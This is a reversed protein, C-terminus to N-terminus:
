KNADRKAAHIWRSTRFKKRQCRRLLVPHHLRQSRSHRWHQNEPSPPLSLTRDSQRKSLIQERTPWHRKWDCKAPKQTHSGLGVCGSCGPTAGHRAVVRTTLYVRRHGSPGQDEQTVITAKLNEARGNWPLGRVKKLESIVFREEPPVRHLSRAKQFGNETLIIHEDTMPAKGVWIGHGWRQDLNGTYKYMVREGFPLQSTYAKGSVNLFVTRGDNKVQFRTLCWAAHRILWATLISDNSLKERPLNGLSLWMARCVGNIVRNANEVKGQSQHSARPGHRM